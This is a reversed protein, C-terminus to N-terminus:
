CQSPPLCLLPFSVLSCRAVVAVLVRVVVCVFTSHENAASVRAARHENREVPENTGTFDPLPASM